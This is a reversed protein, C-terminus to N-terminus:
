EESHLDQAVKPSNLLAQIRGAEEYSHDPKFKLRPTFRLRLSKGMLHRLFNASENLVNIVEETNEGALPLVYATANKLDPSIRVESVTISSDAIIPDSVEGRLLLSSLIHRIEEGVQLQRQSPGKHSKENFKM